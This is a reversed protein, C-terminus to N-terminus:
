NFMWEQFGQSIVPIVTISKQQNRILEWDVDQLFKGEFHWAKQFHLEGVSELITPHHHHHPFLYNEKIISKLSRVFQSYLLEVTFYNLLEGGTQSFFSFENGCSSGPGGVRRIWACRITRARFIPFDHFRISFSVRLLLGRCRSSSLSPFTGNWLVFAIFEARWTQQLPAHWEWQLM